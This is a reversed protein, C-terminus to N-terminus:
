YLHALLFVFGLPEEHIFDVDERGNKRDAYKTHSQMGMPGPRAVATCAALDNFNTPKLTLLLNRVMESGFQFVGITKGQQFLQYVKSDDMETHILEMMNPPTKGNKSIYEVSNQILDVTDLGLLDMKILRLSECEKYTWQTFVRGDEQRVHLPIVEQLPTSSIIIGCAHAGLNKNRGEINRAGTVIKAWESDATAARFDAGENYRDSQPNFIDDLTCEVGEIPAPIMNSIKQAEAYPVTYITCIQKFASKAALRGFTIINSVNDKGYLDTIYEIIDDRFGTNIDSDVDPASGGNIVKIGTVVRKKVFICREDM